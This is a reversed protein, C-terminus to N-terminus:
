PRAAVSLFMDLNSLNHNESFHILEIFASDEFLNPLSLIGCWEVHTKVLVNTENNKQKNTKPSIM